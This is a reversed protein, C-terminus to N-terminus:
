KNTNLITNTHLLTRTYCLTYYLANYLKVSIRCHIAINESARYFKPWRFYKCASHNNLHSTSCTCSACYQEFCKLTHSTICSYYVHSTIAQM